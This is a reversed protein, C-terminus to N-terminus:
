VFDDEFIVNELKVKLDIYDFSLWYIDFSENFFIKKECLSHVTYLTRKTASNIIELANLTRKLPYNNFHKAYLLCYECQTIWVFLWSVDLWKKNKSTVLVVPICFHSYCSAHQPAKLHFNEILAFSKLSNKYSM